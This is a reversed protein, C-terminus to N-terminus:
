LRRAGYYSGIANAASGFLNTTNAANAIAANATANARQNNSNTVGNAYNQGAQATGAAANAGVNTLNFLNSTAQDNRNAAFNRDDSFINDNRNQVTNWLNTGYSRDDTFNQDQRAQDFRYRDEGYNRDTRFQDENFARDDSFINDARDQQYKTLNSGYNRNSEFANRNAGYGQLARNFYDNGYTHAVGFLRDQLAKVADGSRLKGRAAANANVGKAAEGTEFIFGADKAIQSPDWSFAPGSGYDQFQMDAGRQPDPDRNFTPAAVDQPRNFEPIAVADPRPAYTESFYEPPPANPDVPAAASQPAGVQPASYTDEAPKNQLWWDAFGEFGRDLGHESYWPSNRDAQGALKQYEAYVDPRDQQLRSYDVGGGSAPASPAATPAAPAATPKFTDAAYGPNAPAAAPQPAPAANGGPIPLLQDNPGIYYGAPVPSGDMFTTRYTTPGFNTEGAAVRAAYDRQIDAFSRQGGSAAPAAASPAPAAPAPTAAPRSGPLASYANPNTAPQTAPRAGNAPIPTLGLRTSLAALAGTGIDRYPSLDTRTQNYIERQVQANQDAAEKSANAAKKAASASSLASAGAGIIASGIIATATGIAM